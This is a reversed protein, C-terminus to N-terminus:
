HSLLGRSGLTGSRRVLAASSASWRVPWLSRSLGNLDACPALLLTQLTPAPPPSAGGSGGFCRFLDRHVALRRPRRRAGCGEQSRGFDRGDQLDGGLGDGAPGLLAQQGVLAGQTAM